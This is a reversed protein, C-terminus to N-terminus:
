FKLGNERAAEALAKVRGHYDNGGRDFIVKNIGKDLAREAIYEGVVKAAEKNGGNEIEGKIETDVTSASALTEGAFDDIVQVYINDLSRYVSLRPRDPKGKVKNRVRQHRRRKAERKSLKGM